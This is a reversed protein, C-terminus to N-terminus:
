WCCHCCHCCAPMAIPLTVIIITGITAPAPTTPAYGDECYTSNYKYVMTCCTDCTDLTCCVAAQLMKPVSLLVLQLQDM